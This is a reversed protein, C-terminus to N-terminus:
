SSPRQAKKVDLQSFDSPMSGPPSAVAPWRWSTKRTRKCPWAAAGGGGAGTGCGSGGGTVSVTVGIETVVAVSAPATRLLAYVAVSFAPFGSPATAQLTVLPVSGGPNASFVVVPAM